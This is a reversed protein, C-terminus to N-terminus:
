REETEEEEGKHNREYREENRVKSNGRQTRESGWGVWTGVSVCGLPCSTQPENRRIKAMSQNKAGCDRGPAITWVECAKGGVASRERRILKLPSQFPVNGDECIYIQKRKHGWMTGGATVPPPACAPRSCLAASTLRCRCWMAAKPLSSLVIQIM